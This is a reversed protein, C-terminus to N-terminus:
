LVIRSIIWNEFDNGWLYCILSAGAIFPGFPVILNKHFKGSIVILLGALMGIFCFLIFAFLSLKIGLVLGTFALLKIDGGGVSEGKSLLSSGLAIFYFIGSGIVAAVFYNWFPLPHIWIRMVSVIVIGPITIFDPIIKYRIDNISLAVLAAAFPLGILWEISYNVSVVMLGFVIGALIRAPMSSFTKELGDPASRRSLLHIWGGTLFGVYSALIFAIIQNMLNKREYYIKMQFFGRSVNYSLM